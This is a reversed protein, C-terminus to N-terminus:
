TFCGALSLDCSTCCLNLLGDYVLEGAQCKPCLSGASYEGGGTPSHFDQLAIGLVQYLERDRERLTTNEGKMM